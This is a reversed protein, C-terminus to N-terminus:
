LIYGFFVSHIYPEEDEPWVVRLLIQRAGSLNFTIHEGDFDAGELSPEELFGIVRDNWCLTGTSNLCFKDQIDRSIDYQERWDELVRNMEKVLYEM